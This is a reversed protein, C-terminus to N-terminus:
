WTRVVMKGTHLYINGMAKPVIVHEQFYSRFSGSSHCNRGICFGENSFDQGLTHLGLVVSVCVCVFVHMRLAFFVYIWLLRIFHKCQNHHISDQRIMGLRRGTGSYWSCTNKAKNLFTIRVMQLDTFSCILTYIYKM